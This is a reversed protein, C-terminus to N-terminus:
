LTLYGPGCLFHAFYCDGATKINWFAFCSFSYGWFINLKLLELGTVNYNSSCLDVLILRSIPQPELYIPVNIDSCRTRIAGNWDPMVFINESFFEEQGM